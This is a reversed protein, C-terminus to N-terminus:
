AIKRRRIAVVVGTLGLALVGYFGPEPTPSIIANFGTSDFSFQNQPGLGVAFDLTDGANLHTSFSFMAATSSSSVSFLSSGSRIISDTTVGNAGNSINDGIEQFEGTVVYTASAPATFRVVSDQGASGPHLLLLDAPWPGITAAEIPITSGTTNKLVTPLSTGGFESFGSANGDGFYNPAALDPAFDVVPSLTTAYGYSWVGSIALTLPGVTPFDNVANYIDAFASTGSLLIAGCFAIRKLM